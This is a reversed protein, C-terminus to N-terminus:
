SQAKVRFKSFMASGQIKCGLARLWDATVHNCNHCLGYGGQYKVFWLQTSPELVVTDAHEKHLADLKERLATARQGSVEFHEAQKAGLLKAIEADSAGSPLKVERRGLASDSSFFLAHVGSSSNKHGQAFWDWDGFAYEIFLDNSEPLLLSSHRGYDTVYVTVPDAPRPPPVITTTCGGIMLALLSLVGTGLARKV